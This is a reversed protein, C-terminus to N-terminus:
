RRWEPLQRFYRWCRRRHGLSSITWLVSFNPVPQSSPTTADSAPFLEVTPPSKIGVTANPMGPEATVATNNDANITCPMVGPGSSITSSGFMTPPMNTANKMADNAISIVCNAPMRNKTFIVWTGVCIKTGIIKTSHTTPVNTKFLRVVSRYMKSAIPMM